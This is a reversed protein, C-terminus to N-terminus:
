EKTYRQFFTQAFYQESGDELILKGRILIFKRSIDDIGYGVNYNEDGLDKDSFEDIYDHNRKRKLEKVKLDKYKGDKLNQWITNVKGHKIETNLSQNAGM